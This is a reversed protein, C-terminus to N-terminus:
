TAVHIHLILQFSSSHIKSTEIYTGNFIAIFVPNCQAVLVVSILSAVALAVTLPEHCAQSIMMSWDGSSNRTSDVSINGKPSDCLEKYLELEFRDDM